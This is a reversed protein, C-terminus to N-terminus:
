PRALHDHLGNERRVRERTRQRCMIERAEGVHQERVATRRREWRKRVERQENGFRRAPICDIGEEGGRAVGPARDRMTARKDDLDKRGNRRAKWAPRAELAPLHERM